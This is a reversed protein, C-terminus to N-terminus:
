DGKRSRHHDVPKFTKKDMRSVIEQFSFPEYNPHCDVGVDMSLATPDDPLSNHSHGYLHYTGHHSKNWVRHAYHSCFFNKGNFSFEVVDYWFVNEPIQKDHNGRVLIKTGNLAYWFENFMKTNGFCFDGLIITTDKESVKKNFREILSENMETVNKFFNKRDTYNLINAHSFHFDSTAFLNGSNNISLKM